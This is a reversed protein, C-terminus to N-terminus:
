AMRAWAETFTILFPIKCRRVGFATAMKWDFDMVCRTDM